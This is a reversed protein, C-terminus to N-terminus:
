SGSSLVSSSVYGELGQSFYRIADRGFFGEYEGRSAEGKVIVDVVRRPKTAIHAYRLQASKILHKLEFDAHPLSYGVFIWHSADALIQAARHWIASYAYTRFSKRYSFTAIHSSVM